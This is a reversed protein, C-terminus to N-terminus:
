CGTGKLFFKCPSSPGSFENEKCSDVCWLGVGPLLPGLLVLVLVLPQAVLVGLLRLKFM